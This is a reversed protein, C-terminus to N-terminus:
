EPFFNSLIQAKCVVVTCAKRFFSEILILKGVMCYSMGKFYNHVTAETDSNLFRSEFM